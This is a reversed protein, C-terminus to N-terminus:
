GLSLDGFDIDSTRPARDDDDLELDEILIEDDSLADHFTVTDSDSDVDEEQNNNTLSGDSEPAPKGGRPPRPPPPPPSVSLGAAGQRGSGLMSRYHAVAENLAKIQREKELIDREQTLQVEMIIQQEKHIKARLEEILRDKDKIVQSREPSGNQQEPAKFAGAEAELQAIREAQRENLVLQQELRDELSRVKQDMEMLEEGRKGDNVGVKSNAEEAERNIRRQAELEEKVRDLDKLSAQMLQIEKTKEGNSREELLLKEHLDAIESEKELVVQLRDESVENKLKSVEIQKAQVLMKEHFLENKLNYIDKEKMTLKEREQIIEDKLNTIEFCKQRNVDQEETLRQQWGAIEAEKKKVIDREEEVLILLKSMELEAEQVTSHEERILEKIETIDADREIEKDKQRDILDHMWVIENEKEKVIDDATSVLDNLHKIEKQQQEIIQNSKNLKRMIEQVETNDGLFAAKPSARQDVMLKNLKEIEKDKEHNSEGCVRLKEKLMWLEETARKLGAQSEALDTELDVVKVNEMQEKKMRAMDDQLKENAQSKTRLENKLANVTRKLVKEDKTRKALQDALGQAELTREELEETVTWM